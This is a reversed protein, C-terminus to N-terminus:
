VYLSFWSAYIRKRAEYGAPTSRVFFSPSLPPNCFREAVSLPFHRGTGRASLVLHTDRTKGERGVSIAVRALLLVELLHFTHPSNISCSCACDQTKRQSVHHLVHESNRLLIQRKFKLDTELIKKISLGSTYACVRVSLWADASWMVVPRTQVSHQANRNCKILLFSSVSLFVFLYLFSKFQNGNTRLWVKLFFSRFSIKKERM